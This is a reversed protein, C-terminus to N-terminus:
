SLLGEQPSLEASLIPVGEYRLDALSWKGDSQNLVAANIDSYDLKSLRVCDPKRNALVMYQRMDKWRQLVGLTKKTLRYESLNRSNIIPPTVQNQHDRDPEWL